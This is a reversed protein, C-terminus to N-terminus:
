LWAHAMSLSSASTYTIRLFAVKCFPLVEPCDFSVNFFSSLPFKVELKVHLTHIDVTSKM